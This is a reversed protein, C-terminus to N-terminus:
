DLVELTAIFVFFAPIAMVCAVGFAIISALLKTFFETIPSLFWLILASPGLCVVVALFVALLLSGLNRQNRTM